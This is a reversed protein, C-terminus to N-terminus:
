WGSAQATSAGVGAALGRTLEELCPQACGCPWPAGGEGVRLRRRTVHPVAGGFGCAQRGVSTLCRSSGSGRAEPHPSPVQHPLGLGPALPEEAYRELPDM